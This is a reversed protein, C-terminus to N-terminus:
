RVQGSKGVPLAGDVRPRARCKQLSRRQVGLYCKARNLGRVSAFRWAVRRLAFGCGLIQLFQVLLELRKVRPDVRVLLRCVLRSLSGASWPTHIGRPRTCLCRALGAGHRPVLVRWLHRCRHWRLHVHIQSSRLDARIRPLQCSRRSARHRSPDHGALDGLRRSSPEFLSSCVASVTSFHDALNLCPVNADANSMHPFAASFSAIQEHGSERLRKCSSLIRTPIYSAM